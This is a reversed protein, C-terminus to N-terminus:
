LEKEAAKHLPCERCLLPTYFRQIDQNKDQSGEKFRMLDAITKLYFQKDKEDELLNAQRNAEALFEDLNTFDISSSPAYLPDAKAVKVRAMVEADVRDEFRQKLSAEYEAVMDSRRWLGARNKAVNPNDSFGDMDHCIAFLERNDTVGEFFAYALAAKERISLPKKSKGM